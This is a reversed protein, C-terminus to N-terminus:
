NMQDRCTGSRTASAAPVLHVLRETRLSHGCPGSTANRTGPNRGCVMPGGRGRRHLFGWYGIIAVLLLLVGLGIQMGHTLGPPYIVKVLYHAIFVDRYGAEGARQRLDNELLTLPCTIGAFEVLAGYIVAPMHAWIILPWRWTLFVGGVIFGIFLLHVVMVLDAGARYWM